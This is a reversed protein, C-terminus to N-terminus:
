PVSEASSRSFRDELEEAILRNFHGMCNGCDPRHGLTKFVAGPTALGLGDDGMTEGIARRIQACKLVNCHCVIM